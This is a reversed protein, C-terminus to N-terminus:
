KAKVRSLADTARFRKSFRRFLKRPCSKKQKGATAGCPVSKASIGNGWLLQETAVVGDTLGKMRPKVNAVVGHTHPWRGTILSARTPSCFPTACIAKTFRAGQRALRDLNPTKVIPSGACGMVSHNQQDTMLFLINFRGGHQEAARLLEPALAAASVFGGAARIFERRTFRTM